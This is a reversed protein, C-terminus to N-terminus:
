RSFKSFDQVCYHKFRHLGDMDNNDYNKIQNIFPIVLVKSYRFVQQM